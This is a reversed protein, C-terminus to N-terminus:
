APKDGNGNMKSRLIEKGTTTGGYGLIVAMLIEIWSLPKGDKDRSEKLDKVLATVEQVGSVSGDKNTDYDELKINVSELKAQMKEEQHELRIYAEKLVADSADDLTNQLEAKLAPKWEEAWKLRIKEEVGNVIDNGVSQCGATMLIALVIVLNKM